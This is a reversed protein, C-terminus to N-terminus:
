PKKAGEKKEPKYMPYQAYWQAASDAYSDYRADGRRDPLDYREMLDEGLRRSFTVSGKVNLHQWDAFDSSYRLGFRLLPDNYNIGSIGYEEAISWLANYYMHDHAYDPNPIGLLM